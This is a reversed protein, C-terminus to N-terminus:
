VPYYSVIKKMCVIRQVRIDSSNVVGAPTMETTVSRIIMNTQKFACSNHQVHVSGNINHM